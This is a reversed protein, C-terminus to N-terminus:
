HSLRPIDNKFQEELDVEEIWLVEELRITELNDDYGIFDGEDSIIRLCNLFLCLLYVEQLVM